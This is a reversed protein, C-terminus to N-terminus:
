RSIPHIPSQDGTSLEVEAKVANQITWLRRYLGEQVVLEEHTGQQIVKGHELVVVRDAHSLTSLRHAIVLTTRKGHRQRLAQLITAETEADVASLADDLLLVPTERLLARALAVRQRQGGSLTVGREGVLTSYDSPFGRITDHIDALRAAEQIEENAAGERGLRINEGITKSYLFPEQMVVSFQSRVWQRDLDKLERDDFQISGSQYDYLRLLLHMLTSKGSGSPGLIALTQGPEVTFSIGNIAATEEGHSFVLDKVEIRGKAPGDPVCNGPPKSEEPESLIEGMRTLAVASKGLDTLTRGMQRVPWLLINLFMIFAFLTGVTLSGQSIFWAGSLLVLGQQALVILDSTSWYWSMLRLLRLSRDRYLKNPEAFKKMEFEQRAFARVVRLGTLNEQVVRTVQGEAEDVELFLHKVRGIYFYGYLIIPGVLTFSILAMRADLLFMIPVASILLLLANSIDVVQSSLAMRLTEVDSTCRQILDGTEARDHYKAPLRQLHDYLQDKVKRAIGDSAMAAFRGKLFSFFGALLTLGIMLLAPFWLHNRIFEAGGMWAILQRTLPSEPASKSFASDLTASGVLPTAYNILTFVFLAFIARGYYARFGSMLKWLLKIPQLTSDPDSTSRNSM